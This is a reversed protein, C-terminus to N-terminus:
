SLKIKNNYKNKIIRWNYNNKDKKSYMYYKDLHQLVYAVLDYMVPNKESNGVLGLGKEYERLEKQSIYGKKKITSNVFRKLDDNVKRRRIDEFNMLKSKATAAGCMLYKYGNTLCYNKLVVYKTLVEDMAMQEVPKVEVITITEDKNYVILDPSYSKPGKRGYPIELNQGRIDFVEDSNFLRNFVTKEVSSGVYFKFGVAKVLLDPNKRVHPGKETWNAMKLFDNYKVKKYGSYKIEKKKAKLFEEESIIVVTELDAVYTQSGTKYFVVDGDVELVVGTDFYLNPNDIYLGCYAGPKIYNGNIDRIFKVPKKDDSITRGNNVLKLVDRYISQADYNIGNTFYVIGTDKDYKEVRKGNKGDKFYIVSGKHLSNLFTYLSLM